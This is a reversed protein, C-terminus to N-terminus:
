SPSPFYSTTNVNWDNVAVQQTGGNAWGGDAAIQVDLLQYNGYQAEAVSYTEASNSVGASTVLWWAAASTDSAVNPQNQPGGSSCGGYPQTGFYVYFSIADKLKKDGPPLLDVQFRPSGGSCIGQTMTYNTSLNTLQSFTATKPFPVSVLGFGYNVSTLQAGQGGNGQNITRASGSSGKVGNNGSAFQPGGPNPDPMPHPTGAAQAVAAQLAFLIATIGILLLSGPRVHRAQRTRVDATPKM